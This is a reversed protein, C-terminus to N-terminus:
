RDIAERVRTVATLVPYTWPTDQYLYECVAHEELRPVTRRTRITEQRAQAVRDLQDAVTERDWAPPPTTARQDLLETLETQASEISRAERDFAEVLRQREQVARTAATQLAHKAPPTLPVPQEPNVVAALDRGCEAAVHEIISEGYVEDYHSVSMVTERFAVRVRERQKGSANYDAGGIPFKRGAHQTVPEIAALREGFAEFADQEATAETREDEVIQTAMVLPAVVYERLAQLHSSSRGPIDNAM